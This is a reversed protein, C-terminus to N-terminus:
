SSRTASLADARRRERPFARPFVAASFGFFAAAAGAFSSGTCCAM